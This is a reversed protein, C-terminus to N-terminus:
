KYRTPLQAYYVCESLKFRVKVDDEEDEGAWKNEDAKVVPLKM